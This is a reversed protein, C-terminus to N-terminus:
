GWFLGFLIFVIACPALYRITWGWVRAHRKGFISSGRRLEAAAKPAGWVWGTFISLFLGGLVMGLSGWTFDMIDYVGTEELFSFQFQSLGEHAGKSLASPIGLILALLGFFWAAKSRSWKWTEVAYAVPIELLAICTTFAAFALMLFFATGLVQGFPMELFVKPMINFILGAGQDPTQGFAFLAPFIVFGALLAISTDFLAISCASSVIDENKDAYSGYTLLVAEGVCLSFFAQSLAYLLAKLNLESFDPYLFFKVGEWAGPLTLSRVMLGILLLFLAPMLIKGCREIGNRLGGRVVAIVPLIFLLMCGLVTWFRSAFEEHPIPQGEIMQVMYGLTWSAAVLYYTLIFYATCIGLYGALKWFKSDRISGIAAVPNCKTHRGVAFEVLMLPLGILLVCALYLLVFAAGGFHATVYPFRQINGLGVAAGSTALIFGIRSGWSERKQPASIM